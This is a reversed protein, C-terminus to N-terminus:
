EPTMFRQINSTPAEKAPARFGTTSLQKRVSEIVSDAVEAYEPDQRVRDNMETVAANFRDENTALKPLKPTIADLIDTTTAAVLRTYESRRHEASADPEINDYSEIEKTTPPRKFEKEFSSYWDGYKDRNTTKAPVGVSFPKGDESTVPAVKNTTKQVRSVAGTVPDTVVDFDAPSPPPAPITGITAPAGMGMRSPVQLVQKSGDPGGVEQVTSAPHKRDFEGQVIDESVRREGTRAALLSAQATMGSTRIGSIEKANKITENGAAITNLEPAIARNLPANRIGESTAAAADFANAPGATAGVAIGGLFAGLSRKKSPAYSSTKEAIRLQSQEIEKKARVAQLLEDSEFGNIPDFSSVAGDNAVVSNYDGPIPQTDNPVNRVQVGKFEKAIKQRLAGYDFDDFKMHRFDAM